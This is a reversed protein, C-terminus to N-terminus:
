LFWPVTCGFVPLALDLLTCALLTTPEWLLLRSLGM